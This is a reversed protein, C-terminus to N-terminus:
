KLVEELPVAVWEGDSLRSCYGKIKGGEIAFTSSPYGNKLCAADIEASRVVLWGGGVVVAVCAIVLLAMLVDM